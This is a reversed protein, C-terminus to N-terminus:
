DERFIGAAILGGDVAITQGTIFSAEPSLLFSVAAAVEEPQALRGQPVSELWLRQQLSVALAPADVPGPAVCNVRVGHGAFEIALTDSMLKLAAKSAGYALNGRNARVGSVSGINVIALTQGMRELAAKAAMFPGVLNVDLMERLLEASTEEASAERWIEMCNVLGGILGLSDVTQDFAEALEDEDTPDAEIFIANEGAFNDEAEALAAADADIIAVPWGDELLREVVALGIGSAGGTVVASQKM